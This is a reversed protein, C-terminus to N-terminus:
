KRGAAVREHQTMRTGAGRVNRLRKGTITKAPHHIIPDGFWGAHSAAGGNKDPYPQKTVCLHKIYEWRKSDM